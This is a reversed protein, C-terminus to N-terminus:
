RYLGRVPVIQPSGNPWLFVHSQQWNTGGGENYGQNLKGTVGVTALFNRQSNYLYPSHTHGTIMSQGWKQFQQASGRAGGSGIHGHQSLDAGYHIEAQNKDGWIIQDSLEPLCDFKDLNKFAVELATMKEGSDISEAVLYSILYYLKAQRPDRKPNYGIDHIWSDVASSHNSEVCFVPAIEALRNLDIIVAKLDDIVLRDKMRYLHDGRNRGHHSAVEFHIPDHVVILSPNSNELLNLTKQWIEFDQKECHLDGLVAVPQDHTLLNHCIRGQKYELNSIYIRDDSGRVVFVGGFTHDAAAESGAKSRTYNIETCSGTSWSERIATAPSRMLTVLQQKPSAIITALEGANLREGVKAAHKVTPLIAAEPRLVVEGDLITCDTTVMFPLFANDFREHESEVTASFAAKNYYSPLIVLEAGVREAMAKLEVFCGSHPATNNQATTIIYCSSVRDLAPLSQLATIGQLITDVPLKNAAKTRQEKEAKAPKNSDLWNVLMAPELKEAKPLDEIVLETIIAEAVELRKDKLRKGYYNFDNAHALILAAHKELFKSM